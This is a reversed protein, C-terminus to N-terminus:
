AARLLPVQHGRWRLLLAAHAKRLSFYETEERLQRLEQREAETLIGDANRDLLEDYRVMEADMRVARAIRWLEGDTLRDLAALKAQFAEPVDDWDPPSGIELVRLIVADLSQQSAEAHHMLRQHLRDPIQLTVTAVM